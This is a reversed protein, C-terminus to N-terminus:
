IESRQLTQTAIEVELEELLLELRLFLTWRGPDNGCQALREGTRDKVETLADRRESLSLAALDLDLFPPQPSCDHRTTNWIFTLLTLLMLIGLALLWPGAQRVYGARRVGEMTGLLIAFSLGAMALWTM